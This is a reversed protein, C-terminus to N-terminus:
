FRWYKNNFINSVQSQHINFLLAIKIQTMKGKFSRILDVDKWTLKNSPHKEGKHNKLGIRFAHKENESQTVWELNGIRNNTKIGDKHNIYPKNNINNIFAEAVLKHIRFHKLKSNKSLTVIQYGRIDLFFKLLKERNVKVTKVYLCLSKVNGKNSIQYKNEYGYIDKWIEKM